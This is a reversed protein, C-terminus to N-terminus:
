EYGPIQDPHFVISRSVPSTAMFYGLCRAGTYMAPGNSGNQLAELYDHMPRSVTSVTCTVVDGDRLM